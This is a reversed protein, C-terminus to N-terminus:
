RAFHRIAGIGPHHLAILNKGIKGFFCSFHLNGPNQAGSWLSCGFLCTLLRLCGWFPWFFGSGWLAAVNSLLNETICKKRDQDICQSQKGDIDQIIAFHCISVGAGAEEILAAPNEAKGYM